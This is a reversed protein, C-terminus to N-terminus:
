WQEAKSYSLATERSKDSKFFFFFSFPDNGKSEPFLFFFFFVPFLELARVWYIKYSRFQRLSRQKRTYLSFLLLQKLHNKFVRNKGTVLKIQSKGWNSDWFLCIYSQPTIGVELSESQFPRPHPRAMMLSVEIHLDLQFCQTLM